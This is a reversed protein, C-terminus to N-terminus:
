LGPSPRHSAPGHLNPDDLRGQKRFTTEGTDPDTWEQRYLNDDRDVVVDRTEYAQRDHNWMGRDLKATLRSAKGGRNVRASMTSSPPDSLQNAGAPRPRVTADQPVNGVPGCRACRLLGDAKKFRRCRSLPEARELGYAVVRALEGL